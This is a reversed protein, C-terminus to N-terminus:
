REWSGDIAETPGNYDAGQREFKSIRHAIRASHRKSYRYSALAVRLEELTAAEIAADLKKVENMPHLKDM